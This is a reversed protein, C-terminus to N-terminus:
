SQSSYVKSAIIDHAHRQKRSALQLLPRRAHLKMSWNPASRPSSHSCSFTRTAAMASNRVHVASHACAMCSRSRLKGPLRAVKRNPDCSCGTQELAACALAGCIEAPSIRLAETVSNSASSTRLATSKNRTLLSHIRTTGGDRYAAHADRDHELASM